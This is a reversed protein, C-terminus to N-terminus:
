PSFASQWLRRITYGSLWKVIAMASKFPMRSGGYYSVTIPVAAIRLGAELARILVEVEFQYRRGTLEMILLQNRKIGRLGCQVDTFKTGFLKNITTTALFNAGRRIFPITSLSREGLILDHSSCFPLLKFIDQPDLQGDGDLFFCWETTAHSAGTLCARAKGSNKELTIVKYGMSRCIDGTGDQSGDDVIITEYFDPLTSLLSSIHDAENFVPIIVSIPTKELSM